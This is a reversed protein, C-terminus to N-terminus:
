ESVTIASRALLLDQWAKRKDLPERLLHAPHYSAVLSYQGAYSHLQGRLTELEGDSNLMSRTAPEGLCFIVKPQVLELQRQLFGRCQAVEDAHPARNGPPQCKLMNAIYVQERKLGIAQLMEDLLKGAAGVFPEGQANEEDGPADGIIMWDAQPNGAAFVTQQRTQHLDCAQCDVVAQKLQPWDLPTPTVVEETEVIPHEVAVVVASPNEISAAVPADPFVGERAQWLSIGMAKLYANRQAESSM